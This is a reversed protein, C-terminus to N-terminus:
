ESLSSICDLMYGCLVGVLVKSKLDDLDYTIFYVTNGVKNTGQQVRKPNYPFSVKTKDTVYKHIYTLAYLTESVKTRLDPDISKMLSSFIACTKNLSQKSLSEDSRRVLQNYYSFESM